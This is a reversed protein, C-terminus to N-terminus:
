GQITQTKTPKPHEEDWYYYVSITTEHELVDRARTWYRAVAIDLVEPNGLEELRSAILRLFDPITGDTRSVSFHLCTWEATGDTSDTDVEEM